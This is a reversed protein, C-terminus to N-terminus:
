TIQGFKSKSGLINSGKGKLFLSLWILTAFLYCIAAVVFSLSVGVYIGIIIVLISGIVSAIFNIGLVMPVSTKPYEGFSIWRLGSPFPVGMLIGLPAMFLGSVGIRELLGFSIAYDVVTPLVIVLCLSGASVGACLMGVTRPMKKTTIRSSLLSGCASSVLLFFLLSAFAITPYGILLTLRQFLSVEILIFGLGILCYYAFWHSPTRNGEQGKLKSSRRSSSGAVFTILAIVAAIGLDVELALALQFPIGKVLDFYYPSSDTAPVINESSFVSILISPNANSDFFRGYVSSANSGPIYVHTYRTTVNRLISLDSSTFPTKKVLIMQAGPYTSAESNSTQGFVAIHEGVQNAPVGDEELASSITLIDKPLEVSWRVIVLVGNPTLHNLMLSIADTTYLYAESTSYAGTSVAAWSDVLTMDILDYKSTSRALFSRGDDIYIHVKPNWYINGARAGYSRVIDIMAPNVEVATISQAGSMLAEVVDTGGGPGIILVTNRQNLTYPIHLMFTTVPLVPGTGNWALIPTSADGDIVISGIVPQPNAPDSIAGSISGPRASPPGIVDIRSIPNWITMQDVGKERASNLSPKLPTAYNSLAGTSYNFSILACSIILAGITLAFVKRTFQNKEGVIEPVKRQRLVLACALVTGSVATSLLITQPNYIYLLAVAVPPGLSAALLDAFYISPAKGGDGGLAKALILGSLVFPICSAIFYLYLSNLTAPILAVFALLLSLSIAGGAMIEPYHFSSIRPVFTLLAGIGLGGLAISIILYAYHFGITASYIRTLLVELTISQFSSWFVIALLSKQLFSDDDNVIPVGSPNLV